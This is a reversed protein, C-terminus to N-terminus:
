CGILIKPKHSKLESSASRLTRSLPNSNPHDFYSNTSLAMVLIILTSSCFQFVYSDYISRMWKQSERFKSDNEARKRALDVLNRLNRVIEECEKASNSHLYYTRGSNFGDTLTRIQFSFAGSGSSGWGNRAYKSSSRGKQYDLLAGLSSEVHDSSERMIEVGTIEEQFNLCAVQDEVEFFHQYFRTGFL